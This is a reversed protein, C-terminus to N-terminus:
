PCCPASSVSFSPVCLPADDARPLRSAPAQAIIANGRFSPPPLSRLGDDPYSWRYSQGACGVTNSLPLRRPDTARVRPAIRYLLLRKAVGGRVALRPPYQQDTSNEGLELVAGSIAVPGVVEDLVAECNEM